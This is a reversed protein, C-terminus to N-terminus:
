GVRVCARYLAMRRALARPEVEDGGCMARRALEPIPPIELYDHGAELDGLCDIRAILVERRRPPPADGPATLLRRIPGPLSRDAM